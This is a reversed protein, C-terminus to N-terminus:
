LIDAMVDYLIYLLKAFFNSTAEWATDFSLIFEIAVHM